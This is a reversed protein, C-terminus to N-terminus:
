IEIQYSIKEEAVQASEKIIERLKGLIEQIEIPFKSIYEDISEYSIKSDKM